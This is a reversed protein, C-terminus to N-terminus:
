PLDFKKGRSVLSLPLKHSLDCGSWGVGVGLFSGNSLAASNRTLSLPWEGHQVIVNNDDYVDFHEPRMGLRSSFQAQASTDVVHDKGGFVVLQPMRKMELEYM